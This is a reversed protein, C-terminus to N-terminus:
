NNFDIEGFNVGIGGLNEILNLNKHEEDQCRFESLSGLYIRSGDVCWQQGTRNTELRM